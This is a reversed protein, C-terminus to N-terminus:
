TSWAFAGYATPPSQHVECTCRKDRSRPCASAEDMSRQWDEPKPRYGRHELDDNFINTKDEVLIAFFCAGCGECRWWQHDTYM